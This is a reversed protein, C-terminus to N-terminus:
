QDLAFGARRNEQWCADTEDSCFPKEKGFSVVRLRSAPIGASVLAEKVSDARDQGLSINYENSGREDCYGGILVKVNPHSSLYAADRPLVSQADSRLNAKDYDFFVDRINAKFEEEASLAPASKAIAVPSHVTVSADAEISGGSGRAVM